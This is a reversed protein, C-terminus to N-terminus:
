ISQAPEMVDERFKKMQAIFENLNPNGLPALM